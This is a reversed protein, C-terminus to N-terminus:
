FEAEASSWAVMSQKKSRLTVLNRGLFTCYETTSRYDTLSGAWDADIYVEVRCHGSKKYLM